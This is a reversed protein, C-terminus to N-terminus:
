IQEASISQWMSLKVRRNQELSAQVLSSLTSLHPNGGMNKAKATRRIFLSDRTM